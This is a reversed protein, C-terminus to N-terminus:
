DIPVSELRNPTRHQWEDTGQCLICKQRMLVLPFGCDICVNFVPKVPEEDTSAGDDDKDISQNPGSMRVYEIPYFPFGSYIYRSPLEDRIDRKNLFTYISIHRAGYLTRYNAISGEHRKCYGGYIDTKFSWSSHYEERVIRYNYEHIYRAIMMTVDKCLLDM